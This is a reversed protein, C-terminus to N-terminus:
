PPAAAAWCTGLPGLLPHDRVVAPALGACRPWAPATQEVTVSPELRARLATVAAVDRAGLLALARRRAAPPLREVNAVLQVLETPVFPPADLALTDRGAYHFDRELRMSGLVFLGLRLAGPATLRYGLTRGRRTAAPTAGQGAWDLPAPAGATDGAPFGISEDLADAWLHVVRGSKHDLYIQVANGRADRYLRTRYGEYVVPDDLGPEPFALYPPATDAQVMVAVAAVLPAASM